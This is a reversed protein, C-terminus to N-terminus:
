SPERLSEDFVRILPHLFYSIIRRDGVRIEANVQMGPLLRRTEPVNRLGTSALAVRARYFMKSAEPGGAGAQRSRLADEGLTRLTGELLGHRQFPFAQLKVRVADGMAVHGIDAADIEVEAELTSGLPVLTFLAEAEQVVSDASRDAIELVVADEPARLTALETRRAAKEIQAVIEDYQLRAAIMQEMSTRHWEVIFGGRQARLAEIQHSLEVIRDRAMKHSLEIELRKSRVEIVDVQSAVGRGHLRERKEELERALLLQDSLLAASARSATLSAALEELRRDGSEVKLAFERSRQEFLSLQVAHDLGAEAPPAFPRREVEASLRALQAETADRRRELQQLDAAAFTLDLEALVEGRRIVQGPEVLIRRIVSTELPQVVLQPASTVLRGSAVVVRDLKSVSAWFVGAILLLLLFWITSRALLPVPAHEVASADSQFSVAEAAIRRPRRGAADPGRDTM